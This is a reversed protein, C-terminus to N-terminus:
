EWTGIYDDDPNVDEACDPVGASYVSLLKGDNTYACLEGYCVAYYDAGEYRPIAGSTFFPMLHSEVFTSTSHAGPAFHICAQNTSM